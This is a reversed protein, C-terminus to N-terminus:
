DESTEGNKDSKRLVEIIEERGGFGEENRRNKIEQLTNSDIKDSKKINEIFKNIIQSSIPINEEAM